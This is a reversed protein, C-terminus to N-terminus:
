NKNKLRFKWIEKGSHLGDSINTNSEDESFINEYEKGEEENNMCSNEEFNRKAVEFLSTKEYKECKNIPSKMFVSSEGLNDLIPTYISDTSALIKRRNEKNRKQNPPTEIKFKSTNPTLPSNFFQNNRNLDVLLILRSAM